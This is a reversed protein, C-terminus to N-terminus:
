LTKGLARRVLRLSARSAWAALGLALLPGVAYLLGVYMWEPAGPLPPHGSGPYFVGFVVLGAVVALGYTLAAAVVFAVVGVTISLTARFVARM